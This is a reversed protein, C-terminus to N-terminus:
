IYKVINHLKGIPGRQQWIELKNQEQELARALHIEAKIVRPVEEFLLAQAALNIIHGMCRLCCYKKKLHLTISQLLAEVCTGNSKANNM